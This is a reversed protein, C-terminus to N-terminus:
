GWLTSILFVLFLLLSLSHSSRAAPSPDLRDM